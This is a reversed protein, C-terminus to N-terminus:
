RGVNQRDIRFLTMMETGGVARVTNKLASPPKANALYRKGAFSFSNQSRRIVMIIGPWSPSMGQNM